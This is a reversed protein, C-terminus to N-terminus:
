CVLTLNHTANSSCTDTPKRSDDSLVDVIDPPSVERARDAGRLSMHHARAVGAHVIVSM